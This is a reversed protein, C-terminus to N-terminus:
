RSTDGETWTGRNPPVYNPGAADLEKSKGRRIPDIRSATEQEVRQMDERFWDEPIEMLYARFGQGDSTKGVVRSVPRRTEAEKVYTYGAETAAQIRGPLDNFWHRYYGPRKPWYLKQTMSGFPKRNERTVRRETSPEEQMERDAGTQMRRDELERRAAEEQQLRQMRDKGAQLGDPIPYGEAMKMLPPPDANDDYGPMEEEEQAHGAFDPDALVSPSPASRPRGRSKATDTM